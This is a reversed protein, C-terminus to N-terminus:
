KQKTILRIDNRLDKIAAKFENRLQIIADKEKKTISSNSSLEIDDISRIGSTSSEQLSTENETTIRKIKALAERQAYAYTSAGEFEQWALELEPQVAIVKFVRESPNAYNYRVRLYWQYFM